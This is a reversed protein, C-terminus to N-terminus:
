KKESIKGIIFVGVLSALATIIMSLGTADKGLSIIITGGILVIISIIFGLIQGRKVDAIQADIAKNEISQRHLSQNEAMKLIRDGAGPVTKEYMAFDEAPPLPGSYSKEVRMYHALMKDKKEPPISQITTELDSDSVDKDIIESPNLVEQNDEVEKDQITQKKTSM